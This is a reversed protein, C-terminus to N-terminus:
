EDESLNVKFLNLLEQLYQRTYVERFPIGNIWFEWATSTDNFARVDTRKYLTLSFYGGLESLVFWRYWGGHGSDDVRITDLWEQTIPIM